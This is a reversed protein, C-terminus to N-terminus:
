IGAAQCSAAPEAASTSTVECTHAQRKRLLTSSHVLSSSCHASRVALHKAPHLTKV